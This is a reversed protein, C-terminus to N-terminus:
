DKICRVSFGAARIPSWMYAGSSYFDLSRSKIGDVTSSWYYGYSGVSSLSGVGYNRNGAMPLKLPSGFAGESNQTVWSTKEATLEGETPIRFGSPCPNNIGTTGQWLIGERPNRWDYPTNPALIFKANDPSVPVDSSSLTSTTGSTREQHGDTGRGWQYLDGYALYDDSATAVQTAGLNRDMWVKGAGGVVVDVLTANDANVTVVYKNGRLFGGALAMKSIYKWTTGDTSIGILCNGAQTGPNIVMYVTTANTANLTALSTLTVVVEKTGTQNAITYPAGTAPTQNLNITGGSFALTSNGSLKVAKLDGTGKIQFELITFLHNYSLNVGSGVLGSGAPTATKPTAVMFDLAGIHTSSNAELQIQATALSVPVTTSPAPSGSVVDPTYPYYAYFTHEGTGWYMDGTFASSAAATQATLPVNAIAIGGITHAQTSYVGVQDGTKWETTQGSLTSKLGTGADQGTVLIKSGTQTAAVPNTEKKCASALVLLGFLISLVTFRITKMTQLKM